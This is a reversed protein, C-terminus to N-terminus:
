HATARPLAVRAAVPTTPAAVAELTMPAAARTAPIPVVERVETAAPAAPATAATVGRAVPAADVVTPAAVVM